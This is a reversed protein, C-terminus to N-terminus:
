MEGVDRTPTDARHVKERSRSTRFYVIIHYITGRKGKEFLLVRLCPVNWRPHMRPIFPPLSSPPFLPTDIQRCKDCAMVIEIRNEM